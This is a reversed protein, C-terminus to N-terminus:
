SAKKEPQTKPADTDEGEKAEEGGLVGNTLFDSIPNKGDDSTQELIALLGTDMVLQGVEEISPAKDKDYGWMGAWIIHTLANLRIRGGQMSALIRIVSDDLRDELECLAEFTPRLTYNKGDLKITVEGRHRNAM